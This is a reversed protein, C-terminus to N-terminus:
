KISLKDLLGPHKMMQAKLQEYTIGAERRYDQFANPWEGGSNVADDFLSHTLQDLQEDSFKMGNEEVSAKLVEKLESLQILEDGLLLHL